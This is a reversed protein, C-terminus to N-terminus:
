SGAGVETDSLSEAGRDIDPELFVYRATPVAARLAAEASDIDAAIQLGTDSHAVSIKAAVLLEDPGVHLTRLHIVRLVGDSSELAARIAEVEEPLAAEGVLMAAMEMALFVAIIVLLGGVCMAGIGDWVGNGTM